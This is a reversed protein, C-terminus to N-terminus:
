KFIPLTANASKNQMKASIESETDHIDCLEERLRKAHKLNKNAEAIEIALAIDGYKLDSLRGLVSELTDIENVLVDSERLNNSNKLKVNLEEIREKLINEFEITQALEQREKTVGLKEQQEEDRNLLSKVARTIWQLFQVEDRRDAIYLPSLQVNTAIEIEEQLSAIRKEIIKDLQVLKHM